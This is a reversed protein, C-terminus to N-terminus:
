EPFALGRVSPYCGARRGGASGAMLCGREEKLLYWM